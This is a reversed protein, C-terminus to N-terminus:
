SATTVGRATEEALFQVVGELGGRKELAARQRTSGNGGDLVQNTLSASRGL